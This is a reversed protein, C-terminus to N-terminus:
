KSLSIPMSIVFKEKNCGESYYSLTVRVFADDYLNKPAQITVKDLHNLSYKEGIVEGLTKSKSM